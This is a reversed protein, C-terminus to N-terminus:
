EATIYPAFPGRRAPNMYNITPLSIEMGLSPVNSKYLSCSSLIVGHAIADEYTIIRGAKATCIHRWRPKFSQRTESSNLRQLISKVRDLESLHIEYEHLYEITVWGGSIVTLCRSHMTYSTTQVLM